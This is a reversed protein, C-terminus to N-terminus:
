WYFQHAIRINKVSRDLLLMVLPGDLKWENKLAQLVSKDFISLVGFQVVHESASQFNWCCCLLLKAKDVCVHLLLYTLLIHVTPFLKHIKDRLIFDNTFTVATHKNALRSWSHCTRRWNEIQFKNFTSSQLWGFLRM